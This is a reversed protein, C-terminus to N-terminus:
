IRMFCTLVLVFILDALPDSPRTGKSTVTVTTDDQGVTFHSAIHSDAVAEALGPDVQQPILQSLDQPLSQEVASVQEDNFLLSQLVTKRAHSTYLPGLALEM